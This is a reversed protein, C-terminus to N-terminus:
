NVNLTYEGIFKERISLWCITYQSTMNKKMDIVLLFLNCPSNCFTQTIITIQQSCAFTQYITEIIVRLKPSIRKENGLKLLLIKIKSNIFLIFEYHNREVTEIMEILHKTM